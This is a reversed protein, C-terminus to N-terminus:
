PKARMRPLSLERRQAAGVACRDRSRVKAAGWRRHAAGLCTPIGKRGTHESSGNWYRVHDGAFAPNLVLSAPLPGPGDPDWLASGSVPDDIGRGGHGPAVRWCDQACATQVFTPMMLLALILFLWETEECMPTVACRSRRPSGSTREPEERGTGRLRPFPSLSSLIRQSHPHRATVSPPGFASRPVFSDRGGHPAQLTLVWQRVPQHLLHLRRHEPNARHHQRRLECLLAPLCTYTIWHPSIRTDISMNFDGGIHLVGRSPM